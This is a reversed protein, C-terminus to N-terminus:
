KVESFKKTKDLGLHNIAFGDKASGGVLQQAKLDRLPQSFDKIATSWGLHKFCTYVQDVDVTDISRAEKFWALVALFKNNTSKPPHEKIFSELSPDSKLDIDVVQPTRFTPKRSRGQAPRRVIVEEESEESAQDEVDAVLEEERRPSSTLQILRPPTAAQAPKLANQIATTIQSLDGDSLDAELLVFRIRSSGSKPQSGKAMTFGQLTGLLNKVERSHPRLSDARPVIFSVFRHIGM